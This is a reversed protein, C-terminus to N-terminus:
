ADQRRQPRVRHPEARRVRDRLNGRLRDAECAVVERAVDNLTVDSHQSARALYDFARENDLGHRQIVIGVAAGIVTRLQLATSLTDELLVHKLAVAVQSAVLEALERTEGSITDSTSSYMNLSGLTDDADICLRLGLQSRLGGRVAAAMYRPWRQEGRANEILVVSHRRLVDIGPGEGLASQFDDFDRVTLGTAAMTELHGNSRARTIGVHDVGPMSRRAVDVITKLTTATDRRAGVERVARELAHALSLQYLV